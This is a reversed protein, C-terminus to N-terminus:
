TKVIQLQTLTGTSNTTEMVVWTFDRDTDCQVAKLLSSNKEKYGEKEGGGGMIELSVYRQIWM